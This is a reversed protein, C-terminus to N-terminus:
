KTLGNRYLNISSTKNQFHFEDQSPSSFSIKIDSWMSLTMSYLM